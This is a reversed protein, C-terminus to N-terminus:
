KPMPDVPDRNEDIMHFRSNEKVYPRLVLPTGDEPNKQDGEVHIALKSKEHLFGGSESSYRFFAGDNREAKLVLKTGATPTSESSEPHIIRGSKIHEIYFHYGRVPLIRFKIRDEPYGGEYIVLTDGEPANCGNSIPHVFKASSIQQIFGAPLEKVAGAGVEM